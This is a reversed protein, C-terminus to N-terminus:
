GVFREWFWNILPRFLPELVFEELEGKSRNYHGAIDDICIFAGAFMLILGATTLGTSLGVLALSIWVAGLDLHHIMDWGFAEKLWIQLAVRVIFFATWFILLQYFISM